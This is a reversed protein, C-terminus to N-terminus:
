CKHATIMAPDDEGLIFFVNRPWQMLRKKLKKSVDKQTRKDLELLYTNGQQQTEMRLLNFVFVREHAIELPQCRKQSHQICPQKSYQPMTM